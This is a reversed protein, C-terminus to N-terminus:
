ANNDGLAPKNTENLSLAQNERYALLLADVVDKKEPMELQERLAVEKLVRHLHSNATAGALRIKAGEAVDPSVLLAILQEIRERYSTQYAYYSAAGYEGSDDAAKALTQQHVVKDLLEHLRGIRELDDRGFGKVCFHEKCNICDQHFQCPELLWDHECGGWITMLVASRHHIEIDACSKPAPHTVSWHSPPAAAPAPTLLEIVSYGGSTNKLAKGARRAIEGASVHNYTVGQWAPDRGSWWNITDKDIFTDGSGEHGLTNLLHRLQQSNMHLPQGHEGTIRHREFISTVDPSSPGLLPGLTSRSPMWLSVPDPSIGKKLQNAHMCFLGESYKLRKNGAGDIYPFGPPLRELVYLWLSNLTHSGVASSSKPFRYRMFERPSESRSGLAAAAQECTLPEDDAVNPCRAHRYFRLPTSPDKKRAALQEEVYRAFARPGDTIERMRRVAEKAFPVWVAPVWKIRTSQGAKESRYRFGYELSGDLARQEIELDIALEHIEGIRGPQAMLMAIVSTVYADPHTTNDALDFGRAFIAGIANLATMDPLKSQRHAEAEAGLQIRILSPASIPNKWTGTDGHTLGNRSLFRALHMLQQGVDYAIDKAFHERLAQAAHDLVGLDIDAPVARGHERTLAHEIARLAMLRIRGGRSTPNVGQEHRVYAKAFNVFGPRMHWGDPNGVRRPCGHRLFMGVGKWHWQEWDLDEGYVTLEDRAMRVFEALNQEPSAGDRMQFTTECSPPPVVRPCHERSKPEKRMM